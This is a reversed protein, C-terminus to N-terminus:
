DNFKAARGKKISSFEKPTLKGLDVLKQEILNLTTNRDAISDVFDLKDRDVTLLLGRTYGKSWNQYAKNVRHYYNVLNSDAVEMERGRKMISKVENDPSIKLYVSLDPYGNWPSGNVEAQMEQSLTAYVNFDADDIEGHDHLMQCVVWDSELSSDLVSNRQKIAQKLQQYRFTLFAVQLMAAVTKRSSSGNSYFKSLMNNLLQNGTIDEYYAPTGLDKSLLETLSTKGSGFSGMIFIM